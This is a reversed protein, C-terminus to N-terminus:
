LLFEDEDDWAVSGRGAADQWFLSDLRDQEKQLAHQNRAHKVGDIIRSTALGLLIGDIFSM